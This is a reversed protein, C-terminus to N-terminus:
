PLLIVEEKYEDLDDQWPDCSDLKRVPVNSPFVGLDPYALSRLNAELERLNCLFDKNLTGLLPTDFMFRSKKVQNMERLSREIKLHLDILRSRDLSKFSDRLSSKLSFFLFNGTALLFIYSLVLLVLAVVGFFLFLIRGSVSLIKAFIRLPLFLIESGDINFKRVVSYTNLVMPALKAISSSGEPLKLALVSM